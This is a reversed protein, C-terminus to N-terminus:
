RAVREHPNSFRPTRRSLALSRVRVRYNVRGSGSLECLLLFSLWHCVLCLFLGFLFVGPGILCSFGGAFGWLRWLWALDLLAPLTAFPSNM